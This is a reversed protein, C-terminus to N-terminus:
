HSIGSVIRIKARQERTLLNYASDVLDTVAAPDVEWEFYPLKWDRAFEAHREMQDRLEHIRSERAADGRGSFTIDKSLKHERPVRRRADWEDIQVRAGSRTKSTISLKETKGSNLNRMLQEWEGGESQPIRGVEAIPFPVHQSLERAFEGRLTRDVTSEWAELEKAARAREKPKMKALRGRLDDLKKRQITGLRHRNKELFKVRGELTAGKESLAPEAPTKTPERSRAPDHPGSVGKPSRRFLKKGVNLATDVAKNQLKGVVYDKGAEMAGHEHVDSILQYANYAMVLKKPGLGWDLAFEVVGIARSFLGKKEEPVSGTVSIVEPTSPLWGEFTVTPKIRTVARLGQHVVPERKYLWFSWPDFRTEETQWESQLETVPTDEYIVVFNWVVGSEDTYTWHGDEWRIENVGTWSGPDSEPGSVGQTEGAEGGDAPEDSEVTPPVPQEDEPSRRVLGAGGGEQAVHTLEHALLARGESTELTFQGPAFVVSPGSAYARARIAQASRGARADAHVRVHGFDTGFRPEMLARAGDGLPTGPSGLVEEVIAPVEGVAQGDGGRATAGAILVRAEGTRVREAVAEAQHELPDNGM